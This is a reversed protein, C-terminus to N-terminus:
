LIKAETVIISQVTVHLIASSHIRFGTDLHLLQICQAHKNKWREHMSCWHNNQEKPLNEANSTM